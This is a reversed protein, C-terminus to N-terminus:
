QTVNEVFGVGPVVFLRDLQGLQNFRFLVEVAKPVSPLQQQTPPQQQSKNISIANSPPPWQNQFVNKYDLYRFHIDNINDLLIKQIAPTNKTRDLHAWSMRVLQKNKFFYAVRQLESRDSIAMPNIYGSRTFEFYNSNGTLSPLQQNSQDIISRDIVQTIDRQMIIMAFQMKNMAVVHNEIVRQTEIVNKMSMLSISAVIAFVFLAIMIELLTFGKQTNQTYQQHAMSLKSVGLNGRKSTKHSSNIGFANKEGQHSRLHTIM